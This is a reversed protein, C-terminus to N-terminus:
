IIIYLTLEEMSEWMRLNCLLTVCVLTCHDYIYPLVGLSYTPAVLLVLSLSLCHSLPFFNHVFFTPFSYPSSILEHPYFLLVAYCFEEWLGGWIIGLAETLLGEALSVVDKSDLGDFNMKDMWSHIFSGELSIRSDWMLWSGINHIYWYIGEKEM